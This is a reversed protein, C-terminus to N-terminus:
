DTFRGPNLNRWLPAVSSVHTQNETAAWSTLFIWALRDILRVHFYSSTSSSFFMKSTWSTFIDEFRKKLKKKSRFM